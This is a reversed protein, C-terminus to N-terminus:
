AGGGSFAIVQGSIFDAKGSALLAILAGIEEPQGFRKMPIIKNALEAFEPNDMGGPFYNSLLLLPAIANISLGSPGIETALAKVMANTAARAATYLAMNPMPLLPAGSTVVIIRGFGQEKMQEIVASVLRFPAITFADLLVRYDEVSMQEIPGRRVQAADNSIAADIHGFTAIAERALEDFSQAESAFQNPHEADFKGRVDPDSFQASHCMTQFGDATLAAAGPPGAYDMVNTVIAAQTM